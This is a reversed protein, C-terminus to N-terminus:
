RPDVDVWLRSGRPAAAVLPRLAEAVVEAGQPCKAMLQREPPGGTRRRDIPGLVMAGAERCAAAARGALAEGEAGSARAVVLETYPPYSLEARGPLEREVFFRHDARVLAQVAHHAPESTELLLRNGESAPGAWQAMAVLAQHANEAARFDPRRVLGDVDLVGVLSVEPRLEPKTGFWTTVYIDCRELDSRDPSPEPSGALLDPDIRGVVAHPFARALQEALREVGAGLARLETSSCRPCRAPVSDLHGCRPCRLRAAGRDLAMGAECVPCRLSRRCSACWLARAYGRRPALLGVRQKRRLAAAVREHFAHSFAREGEPELLEVLPRAARRRARTPELTPLAAPGYWELSPAASALVCVANQLSARELAVRRADFRPARDEKYAVNHEDDVVILGLNPAPALVAARGGAGMGHGAALRLWARSREGESRSSDVREVDPLRLQLDEIVRAGHRVEPATMLTAGGTCAALEAIVAARDEGWAWQLCWTGGRGSTLATLLDSGGEYGAVTATKRTADLSPEPERPKVRVRPPVSRALAAGQPAVYRRAIWRYLETLPPRAPAPTVVVALVPELEESPASQTGAVVVGRVNRHGLRVRVVSGLEVSDGLAEPVLYDFSRDLRWAPVLPVVSVQQLPPLRM